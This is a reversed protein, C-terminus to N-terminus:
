ICGNWYYIIIILFLSYPIVTTTCHFHIQSTNMLNLTRDRTKSLPNLIWCQESSYYLDYVCSPDQTETATTYVQLYLESKVGLRPVKM